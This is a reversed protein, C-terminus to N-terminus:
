DNKEALKIIIDAVAASAGKTKLKRLNKKMQNRTREDFLLKRLSDSLFKPSLTNQPYAIAAGKNFLYLANAEQQSHPIAVLISIKECAIIESITSFGARSVILDAAAFADPFNDGLFDWPHYNPYNNFNETHGSGTVHIIQFTKTLESLSKRILQNLSKAGIGGGLVLLTPLDPSLGFETIARSKVGSLVAERVPNGTFATKESKRPKFLGSQANFDKLSKPISATIKDAIPSILRNSFTPIVDQQHIIVRIGLIKAAYAVPVAVYSGASFIADPRHKILILLSKIFGALVLFIDFFNKFSLYRRWKGAPIKFASVDMGKLLRAEPPSEGGFYLFRTQPRKKLIAERVALLPTLPGGSGGGVLGITFIKEKSIM